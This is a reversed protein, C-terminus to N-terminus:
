GLRTHQAQPHFSSCFLNRGEALEDSPWLCEETEEDDGSTKTKDHAGMKLEAHTQTNQSSHSCGSKNKQQSKKRKQHMRSFSLSDLPKGKEQGRNGTKATYKTGSWQIWLGMMDSEISRQEAATSEGEM